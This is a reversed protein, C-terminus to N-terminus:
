QRTLAFVTRDDARMGLGAELGALSMLGRAIRHTNESRNEM